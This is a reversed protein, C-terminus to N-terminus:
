SKKTEDRLTVLVEAKGIEEVAELLRESAYYLNFKAEQVADLITTHEAAIHEQVESLTQYSSDIVKKVARVSREQDTMILKANELFWPYKKALIPAARTLVRNSIVFGACYSDTTVQYLGNRETEERM